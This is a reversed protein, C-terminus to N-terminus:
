DVMEYEVRVRPIITLHGMSWGRATEKLSNKSFNRGLIALLDTKRCIAIRSM